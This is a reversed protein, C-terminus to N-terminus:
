FKNSNEDKKFLIIRGCNICYEITKMSKIRDFLQAPISSYCGLCYPERVLIVARKKRRDYIRQYKKQYEEPLSSVLKEREVDLKKNEEEIDKLITNIEEIEKKISEMTSNEEELKKIQNEIKEIESLNKLIKDESESITDKKHKIGESIMMYEDNSKVNSLYKKDEEIKDRLVIIKQESEKNESVIKEKEKKLNEIKGIISDLQEKLEKRKLPKDGMKIRNEEIKEEIEGIKQFIEYIQEM